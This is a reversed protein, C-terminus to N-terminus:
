SMTAPLPRKIQPLVLRGHSFITNNGGFRQPLRDGGDHRMPPITSATDQAGIELSLSQGPEFYFAAPYFPIKLSYVKGKEVKSRPVKPQLPVPYDKNFGAEVEERHSLRFYGKAFHEMPEGHNGELLIPKGKADLARLCLFLDLDEADTSAEVEVFPIGLLELPKNFTHELDFMIAGTLGEYHFVQKEEGPRSLSLKRDPTLYFYTEEADPPPFATEQERLFHGNSSHQVLRIRPVDLIGSDEIGFMFHDLFKKQLSVHEPHYYWALHNGTHMELWKFKSSSQNFSVINGPLHIETDTWNGATYIPIEINSLKRQKIIKWIDDDPFENERVLAVHDSRNAALHKADLRGDASGAQYPIVINNYWHAQFNEGGVGGRRLTQYVDVAAEYIVACTLHPPKQLAAAYGMMGYYSIGSTAVKGNSWSQTGAWEIV